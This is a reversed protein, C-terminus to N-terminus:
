DGLMKGAAVLGAILAQPTPPSGPVSVGVEVYYSLHHRSLGPLKAKAWRGGSNAADGAAVVVSPSPTRALETLVADVNRATLLGTVVVVDAEAASEVHTVGMQRLRQAYKPALLARWELADADAGGIHLHYIHLSKPM